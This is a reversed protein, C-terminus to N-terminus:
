RTATRACWSRKRSIMPSHVVLIQSYQVTRHLEWNAAKDFALFTSDEINQPVQWMNAIIVLRGSYQATTPPIPVRCSASSDPVYV